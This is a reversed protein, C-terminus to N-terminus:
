KTRFTIQNGESTTSATIFSDVVIKGELVKTGFRKTVVTTPIKVIDVYDNEFQTVTVTNKTNDTLFLNSPASPDWVLSHAETKILKETPDELCDNIQSHITSFSVYAFDDGDLEPTIQLSTLSENDIPHEITNITVESSKNYVFSWNNNFKYGTGRGITDAGTTFRGLNVSVTLPNIFHQDIKPKIKYFVHYGSAETILMMEVVDLIYNNNSIKYENRIGIADNTKVIMTKAYQPLHTQTTTTDSALMKELRNNYSIVGPYRTVLSQHWKTDSDIYLFQRAGIWMQGWSYNAQDSEYYCLSEKQGNFSLYWNPTKAVVAKISDVVFFGLKGRRSGSSLSGSRTFFASFHLPIKPHEFIDFIKELRDVSKYFFQSLLKFDEYSSYIYGYARLSTHFVFGLDPYLGEGTTVEDLSVYNKAYKVITDNENHTKMLLKGGIYPVAMMIANAGDRSWGMSIAGSVTPPPTFFTSIYVSLTRRLYDNPKGYLDEYLYSLITLFRPYTISFQYWNTGWPLSFSRIENPLQASVQQVFFVAMSWIVENKYHRSEKNSTRVVADQIKIIVALFAESHSYWTYDPIAVGAADVANVGLINKDWKFSKITLDIVEDRNESIAVSYDYIFRGFRDRDTIIKNIIERRYKIYYYVGAVLVSILVVLMTPGTFYTAKRLVSQNHYM